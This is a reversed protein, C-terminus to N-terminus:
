GVVPKTPFALEFDTSDTKNLFTLNWGSDLALMRAYALGHGEGSGGSAVERPSDNMAMKVAEPLQDGTNSVVIAVSTGVTARCTVSIKLQNHLWRGSKASRLTAEAANTLLKVMIWPFPSWCSTESRTSLPVCGELRNFRIRITEAIGINYLFPAVLQQVLQLESGISQPEREKTALGRLIGLSNRAQRYIEALDTINKSGLKDDLRELAGTVIDSIAHRLVDAALGERALAATLQRSALTGAVLSASGTITAIWQMESQTFQTDTAGQRDFVLKAVVNGTSDLIPAEVWESLGAKDFQKIQPVRKYFRTTFEGSRRWVQSSVSCLLPRKGEKLANLTGLTTEDKPLMRGKFRELQRDGFQSLGQQDQGNILFSRIRTSVGAQYAAVSVSYLLSPLDQLKDGVCNTFWVNYVRAAHVRELAQSGLRSLEILLPIDARESIPSEDQREVHVTHSVHGHSSVLPVVAFHKLKGDALADPHVGKDSDPNRVIVPKASKAAIVQCDQSHEEFGRHTRACVKEMQSDGWSDLGNITGHQWHVECLLGRLYHLKKFALILEAFVQQESSCKELAIGCEKVVDRETALQTAFREILARGVPWAAHAALLAFAAEDWATYANARTTECTLVGLCQPITIEAQEREEGFVIPASMHSVSDPFLVISHKEADVQLSRYPRKSMFVRAAISNREDLVYRTSNLERDRYQRDPSSLTAAIVLQTANPSLLKADIRIKEDIAPAPRSPINPAFKDFPRPHVVLGAIEVYHALIQEPTADRSFVRRDIMVLHLLRLTKLANVDKMAANALRGVLSLLWMEHASYVPGGFPRNIYLLGVYGDSTRLRIVASVNEASVIAVLKRGVAKLDTKVRRLDRRQNNAACYTERYHWTMVEASIDPRYFIARHAEFNVVDNAVLLALQLAEEVPTM